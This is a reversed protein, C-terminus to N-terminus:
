PIWIRLRRAYKSYSPSSSDYKSKIESNFKFNHNGTSEIYWELYDFKKSITTVLLSLWNAEYTRLLNDLMLLEFLM